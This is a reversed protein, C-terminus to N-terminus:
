NSMACPLTTVSSLTSLTLQTFQQPPTQLFIRDLLLSNSLFVSPLTNVCLFPLIWLCTRMYVIRLGSINMIYSSSMVRLHRQTYSQTVITYEVMHTPAYLELFLLLPHPCPKSTLQSSASSYLFLHYWNTLSILQFSGIMGINGRDRHEPTNMYHWVLVCMLWKSWTKLGCDMNQQDALLEM